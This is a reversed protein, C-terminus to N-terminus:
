FLRRQAREIEDEIKKLQKSKGKKLIVHEYQLKMKKKGLEALNHRTIGEVFQGPSGRVFQYTASWKAHKIKLKHDRTQKRDDYAVPCDRAEDLWGLFLPMAKLEWQLLLEVDFIYHHYLIKLISRQRTTLDGRKPRFTNLRLLDSFKTYNSGLRPINDNIKLSQLTHNSRAISTLSKDNCLMRTFYGLGKDTIRGVVQFHELVTNRSLSRSIIRAGADGCHNPLTLDILRCDRKRLLEGFIRLCQLDLVSSRLTLKKLNVLCTISSCLSRAAVASLSFCHLEFSQLEVAFALGACLDGATVDSLIARVELHRLNPVSWHLLTSLAQSSKQQISVGGSQGLTILKLEELSSAMSLGVCVEVLGDDINVVPDLQALSFHTLAACRGVTLALQWLGESRLNATIDIKALNAHRKFLQPTMEILGSKGLQVKDFIVQAVKAACSAKLFIWQM